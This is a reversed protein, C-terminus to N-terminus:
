DLRRWLYDVDPALEEATQVPGEEPLLVLTPGAKLLRLQAPVAPKWAHYLGVLGVVLRGPNEAAIRELHRALIADRLSQAECFTRFLNEHMVGAGMAREIVARYRPNVNCGGPPLQRREEETLSAVGGSAVRRILSEEGNIGALPIRRERLFLFLDRYAPWNSLSWDAEFRRYLWADERDGSIWGELETTSAASFTEMGVVLPVGADALLRLLEIQVAHHSYNGHVEGIVLFRATRLQPLLQAANFKEGSSNRFSVQAAAGPQAGVASLVLAVAAARIARLAANSSDAPKEAM